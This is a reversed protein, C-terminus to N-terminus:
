HNGWVLVTQISNRQLLALSSARSEITLLFSSGPSRTPGDMDLQVRWRGLAPEAGEGVAHLVQRREGQGAVDEACTCPRDPLWGCSM